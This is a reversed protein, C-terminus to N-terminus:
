LYKESFMTLKNKLESALAKYTAMDKRACLEQMQLALKQIVELEPLIVKEQAKLEEPLAEATLGKAKTVLTETSGVIGETNDKPLHKDLIQNVTVILGDFAPYSIPLFASASKEFSEHVQPLLVYVSDKNGAKAAEAYLKVFKAMDERNQLFAAKRAPNKMKPELAAVQAMAKEFPEAAALMVTYDKAPYAVHWVEHIAEHFAGFADAGAKAAKASPCQAQVSLAVVLVAIIVAAFKVTRM